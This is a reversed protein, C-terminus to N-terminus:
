EGSLEELFAEPEQWSVIGGDPWLEIPGVEPHEEILHRGIVLEAFQERCVGCTHLNEVAEDYV